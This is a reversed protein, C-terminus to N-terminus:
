KNNIIRKKDNDDEVLFENNYISYLDAYYEMFLEIAAEFFTVDNSTLIQLLVLTKKLETLDNTNELNDIDEGLKDILVSIDNKFKCAKLDIKKAKLFEYEIRLHDNLVVGKVSYIKNELEKLLNTDIKGGCFNFLKKYLSYLKSLIFRNTDDQFMMFKNEISNSNLYKYLLTNITNKTFLKDNEKLSNNDNNINEMFEDFSM